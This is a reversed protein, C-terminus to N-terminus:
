KLQATMLHNKRIRIRHIKELVAAMDTFDSDQDTLFRPYLSYAKRLTDRSSDPSVLLLRVETTRKLLAELLTLDDISQAHFLLTAIGGSQPRSLARKLGFADVALLYPVSVSQVAALLRHATEDHNRTYVILNM